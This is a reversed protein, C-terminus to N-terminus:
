SVLQAGLFEVGRDEAGATAGAAAVEDAVAAAVAALAAFRGLLQMGPVLQARFVLSHAGGRRRGTAQRPWESQQRHPNERKMCRGLEQPGGESGDRTNAISGSRISHRSALM